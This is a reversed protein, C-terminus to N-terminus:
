IKGSAKLKRIRVKIREKESPMNRNESEIHATINARLETMIEPGADIIRSKCTAEHRKLM